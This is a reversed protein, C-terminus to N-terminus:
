RCFPILCFLLMLMKMQNHLPNNRLLVCSRKGNDDDSKDNEGYTDVLWTREPPGRTEDLGIAILPVDDDDRSEREAHPGYETSSSLSLFSGWQIRGRFGLLSLSFSVIAIEYAFVCSKPNSPVRPRPTINRIYCDWSCAFVTQPIVTFIPHKGQIPLLLLTSSALVINILGAEKRRPRVEAHIDLFQEAFRRRPQLECIKWAEAAAAATEIIAHDRTRLWAPYRFPFFFFPTRRHPAAAIISNTQKYTLLIDPLRNRQQAMTAARAPIIRGNGVSFLGGCRSTVHKFQTLNKSRSRGVESLRTCVCCVCQTCVCAKLARKFKVKFARRLRRRRKQGAFQINNNGNKGRCCCRTAYSISDEHRQQSRSCSLGGGGGGGYKLICLARATKLERM